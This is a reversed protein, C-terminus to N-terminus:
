NKIEGKVIRIMHLIGITDTMVICVNKDESNSCECVMDMVEFFTLNNRDESVGDSRVQKLNVPTDDDLARYDGIPIITGNLSQATNKNIVSFGVSTIGINKDEFIINDHYKVRTLM